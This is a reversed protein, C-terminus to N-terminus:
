ERYWDTPHPDNDAVDAVFSVQVNTVKRPSKQWQQAIKMREKGTLSRTREISIDCTVSPILSHKCQRCVHSWLTEEVAACVFCLNTFFFSHM